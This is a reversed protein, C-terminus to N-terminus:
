RRWAMLLASAADAATLALTARATPPNYTAVGAYATTTGGCTESLTADIM